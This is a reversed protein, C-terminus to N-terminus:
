SGAKAALPWANRSRRGRSLSVGLCDMAGTRYRGVNGSQDEQRRKAGKNVPTRPLHIRRRGNAPDHM